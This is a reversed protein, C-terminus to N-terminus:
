TEVKELRDYYDPYENIHDLAIERAVKRDTTHELEVKTGKDLQAEITRESVKHKKALQAVTPTKVSPMKEETLGRNNEKEKKSFTNSGGYMKNKPTAKELKRADAHKWKGDYNLYEKFSLPHVTDM